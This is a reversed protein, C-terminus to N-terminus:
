LLPRRGARGARTGRRRAARARVKESLNGVYGLRLRLAEIVSWLPVFVPLVILREVDETPVHLIAVKWVCLVIHAAGYALSYFANYYLLQQLSLSAAVRAVRLPM